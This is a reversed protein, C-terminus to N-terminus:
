VWFQGDVGQDDTEQFDNDSWILGTQAPTPQTPSQLMRDRRLESIDSRLQNQYANMSARLAQELTGLAMRTVNADYGALQSARGVLDVDSQQRRARKEQWAEHRDDEWARFAIFAGVVSIAAPIALCGALATWTKAADWTPAVMKWVLFVAATLAVTLALAIAAATDKSM